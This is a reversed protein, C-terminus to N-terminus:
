MICTALQQPSSSLASKQNSAQKLVSEARQNGVQLAFAERSPAKFM